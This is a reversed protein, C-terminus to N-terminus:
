RARSLSLSLSLSLSVSDHVLEEVVIEMTKGFIQEASKSSDSISKLSEYVTALSLINEVVLSGFFNAMHSPSQPLDIVIDPIISVV